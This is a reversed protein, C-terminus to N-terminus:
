PLAHQTLNSITCSSLFNRFWASDFLNRIETGCGKNKGKGAMRDMFGTVLSNRVRGRALVLVRTLRGKREEKRRKEGGEERQRTRREM